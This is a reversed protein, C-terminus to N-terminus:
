RRGGAAGARCAFLWAPPVNVLCISRRVDPWRRRLEGLVMPSYQLVLMTGGPALVKASTDLVATRVSAPLSTYPLASVMVDAQAGALYADVKEASDAVVELRPDRLRASIGAALNRDIEFALLRAGPKLRALIEETYVGTGAGLEVVVDARPLDGMDLMTRVARRSTPLVAGVQRPHALFSRLFRVRDRVGTIM